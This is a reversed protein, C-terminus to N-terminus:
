GANGSAHYLQHLSGAKRENAKTLGPENIGLSVLESAAVIRTDDLQEALAPLGNQSAFTKMDELVDLIWDHTM